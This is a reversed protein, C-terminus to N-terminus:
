QNKFKKMLEQAMPSSLLENLKNKDSLVDNLKQAQEKSLNNKVFNDVNGGKLLEDFKDHM